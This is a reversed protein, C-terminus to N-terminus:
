LKIPFLHLCAFLNLSSTNFLDVGVVVKDHGGSDSESNVLDVVAGQYLATFLDWASDGEALGVLVGFNEKYYTCALM